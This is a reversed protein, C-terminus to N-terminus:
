MWKSRAPCSIQYVFLFSSLSRSRQVYKTPEVFSVGLRLRTFPPSLVRLWGSFSLGWRKERRRRLRSIGGCCFLRKAVAGSRRDVFLYEGVISFYFLFPEVSRSWDFWSRSTNELLLLGLASRCLCHSPLLLRLARSTLRVFFKTQNFCFSLRSVFAIQSSFPLAPLNSTILRIDLRRPSHVHWILWFWWVISFNRIFVFYQVIM